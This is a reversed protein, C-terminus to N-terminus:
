CYSARLNILQLLDEYIAQDKIEMMLWRGGASFPTRQYLEQLHQTCGPLMAEAAEALQANIVVLAIFYGDMPYLTCLSKGKKKFKVNWGRQASCQSYETLEKAGLQHLLYDKLQPWWPSGVFAAIEASGPQAGRDYMEEWRAM